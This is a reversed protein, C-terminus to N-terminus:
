RRDVVVAGSRMVVEIAAKDRLITVDQSPDGDVVLLDATKGVDLTGIEDELGLAEAAIRTASAIAQMPSMGVQEVLIQLEAANDGHSVGVPGAFDTGVAIKVGADFARRISELHAEHSEEAKKM